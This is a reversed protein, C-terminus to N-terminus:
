EADKIKGLYEVFVKTMQRLPIDEWRVFSLSELRYSGSAALVVLSLLLVVLVPQAARLVTDRGCHAAYWGILLMCGILLLCVLAKAITQLKFM